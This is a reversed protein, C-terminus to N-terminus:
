HPHVSQRTAPRSSRKALSVNAEQELAHAISAAWATVADWQRFDGERVRLASTIARDRFGLSSRDLKGGFLEHGRASSRQVLDAGNFVESGAANPAGIPGSSFLWTPRAALMERNDDLFKRADRLWGGFYVASGLVFAGYPLVSEIDQMRRVEAPVDHERLVDAIAQAIEETAGHRSATAVLVTM